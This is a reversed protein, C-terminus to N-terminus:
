TYSNVAILVQELTDCALGYLEGGAHREASDWVLFKCDKSNYEVVWGNEAGVADFLIAKGREMVFRIM